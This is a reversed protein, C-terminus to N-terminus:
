SCILSHAAPSHHPIMKSSPAIVLNHYRLRRFHETPQLTLTASRNCIERRGGFDRLVKALACLSPISHRM